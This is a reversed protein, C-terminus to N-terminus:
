STLDNVPRETQYNECPLDRRLDTDRAIEAPLGCVANILVTQTHGLKIASIAICQFQLSGTGSAMFQSELHREKKCLLVVYYHHGCVQVEMSDWKLNVM